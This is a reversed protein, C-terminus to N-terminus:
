QSWSCLQLTSKVLAVSRSICTVNHNRLQLYYPNSFTNYHLNEQRADCIYASTVWIFRRPSAHDTSSWESAFTYTNIHFYYCNDRIIKSHTEYKRSKISNWIIMLCVKNVQPKSNIHENMYYTETESPKSKPQSRRVEVDFSHLKINNIGFISNVVFTCTVKVEM